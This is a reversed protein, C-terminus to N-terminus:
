QRELLEACKAYALAMAMFKGARLEQGAQRAEEGICRAARSWMRMQQAPPLSGGVAPQQLRSTQDESPIDNTNDMDTSRKM